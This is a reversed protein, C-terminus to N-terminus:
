FDELLSIIKFKDIVVIKKKLSRFFDECEQTWCLVYKIDNESIFSLIESKDLPKEKFKGAIFPSFLPGWPVGLGVFNRKEVKAIIYPLIHSNYLPHILKGKEFIHRDGEVLIKDGKETNNLMYEILSNVSEPLKGPLPSFGFFSILSRASFFLLALFKFYDDFRTKKIHLLSFILFLPAFRIPNPSFVFTSFIILIKPVMGEDEWLKLLFGNFFVLLYYIFAFIIFMRRTTFIARFAIIYILPTFVFSLEFYDFTFLRFAIGFDVPLFIKDEVTFNQHTIEPSLFINIYRVLVIHVIVAKIFYILFPIFFVDPRREVISFIASFIVLPPSIFHIIGLIIYDLASLKTNRSLSIRSAIVTFLSSSMLWHVHGGVVASIGLLCFIVMIYTFGPLCFINSNRKNPYSALLLLFSFVFYFLSAFNYVIEYNQISLFKSILFFPIYIEASGFSLYAILEDITPIGEDALKKAVLFRIPNDDYYFLTNMNKPLLILISLCIIIFSWIKDNKIIM